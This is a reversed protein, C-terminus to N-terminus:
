PNYKFTLKVKCDCVAEVLDPFTSLGACLDFAAPINPPLKRLFLSGDALGSTGNTESNFYFDDIECAASVNWRQPLSSLGGVYEGLGYGATNSVVQVSTAVGDSDGCSLGSICGSVTGPANGNTTRNPNEFGFSFEGSGCPPVSPLLCPEPDPHRRRRELAHKIKKIKWIKWPLGENGQLDQLLGPTNSTTDGRVWTGDEYITDVEMTGDDLLLQAQGVIKKPDGQSEAVKKVQLAALGDSAPLDCAGPACLGEHSAEESMTLQLLCLLM